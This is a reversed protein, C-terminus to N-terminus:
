LMKQVAKCDAGSIGSRFSPAKRRLITFHYEALSLLAGQSRLRAAEWLLERGQVIVGQQLYQMAKDWVANPYCRVFALKWLRKAIISNVAVGYKGQEFVYSLAYWVPPYYCKAAACLQELYFDDNEAESFDQNMLRAMQYYEKGTLQGQQVFLNCLVYFVEVICTDVFQPKALAQKLALVDDM